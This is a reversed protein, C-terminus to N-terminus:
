RHLRDQITSWAAPARAGDVTYYLSNHDAPLLIYDDVGQLETSKLSVPGDSHGPKNRVSDAADHLGSSIHRLGWWTRASEPSVNATSDIADASLRRTLNHNGAVITYRVGARRPRANLQTLFRSEPKLDRGAEGLGDTIIWTPSWDAESRWLSWHERFELGVRYPAWRSGQNPTGLLILHDVNGAYDDGELYARAVLGGMSHAIMSVRLTTFEDRVAQMEQALLAVSDEIPGDSPYTFTAVQFGEKQLLDSMPGWNSRNCDLGHILVVLRRNENIDRPLLLGWSRKQHATADPAAAATFTRIARKADDCSGPFRSPHLEFAFSNKSISIHCAGDLSKNVARVFDSDARAMAPLFTLALLCAFPGRM